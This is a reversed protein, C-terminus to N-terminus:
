LERNAIWSEVKRVDDSVDVAISDEEVLAVFMKMGAELARLQELQEAVELPSPALSAFRLLADRRYGYIGIHKLHVATEESKGERVFPIAARSFYLAAGNAARIVKVVNPNAADAPNSIPIAATAIDRSPEVLLADVVADITTPPLLPEDGQVNVYLSAHVAAAVEAVRESGSACDPSTMVCEGGFSRVERAIEEHDTAVIVRAGYKSKKAQEYVRRIMTKGAILALPKAPFRTSAYRAPIVLVVSPPTM